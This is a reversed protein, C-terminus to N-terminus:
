RGARCRRAPSLRPTVLELPFGEAHAGLAVALVLEGGEFHLAVHATTQVLVAHAVAHAKLVRIHLDVELDVAFLEEDDAGDM